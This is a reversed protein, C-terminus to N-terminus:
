ASKLQDIEVQTQTLTEELDVLKQSVTDIDPSEVEIERAITLLRMAGFNSAMGKISHAARQANELDGATISEKIQALSKSAEAPVCALAEHLGEDGLAERLENFKDHDFIPLESIVDTDKEEVAITESVVGMPEERSDNVAIPEPRQVVASPDHRLEQTTEQQTSEHIEAPAAGTNVPEKDRATEDDRAKAVRALAAFLQRPDIPKTVYDNMGAALYEERHGAMANATLAVIPTESLPPALKRIEMTATPGDMEPMQIDMLVLDFVAEQVAAVAEAGNNVVEVEHGVKTLMTRAVLQNVTNDEAILIKLKLPGDDGEQSDETRPQEVPAEGIASRITFWFTSGQGLESHLGVGGGMIQALQRCIVLGLGSGGFRRTTSSDAQSFRAFLKSQAEKPIGIGTDKVDVRLEVEEEVMKFTAIVRVGGKETFKVANGILNFLIQRLRTPDGRLWTPLDATGETALTLGVDAAKSSLLSVVGDIVQEPSYDVSELDIRGEELKSYDLIDDIISLLSEASDRALKTYKRQDDTLSTDSLIGIMGLVGNMPTRIEHSMTALFQSKAKNAANAEDRAVSLEEALAIQKVAEAEVRERADQLEDLRRNLEAQTDLMAAERANRELLSRHVFFSWALGVLLLLAAIGMFIYSGVDRFEADKPTMDVYVEIAGRFVGATMVPVYAESVVTRDEGFAESEEIKVFTEGKQVQAIFYPKTNVKGLDESRSAVTITGDPGFMKYRFVGGAQTAFNLVQATEQSVEGSSLISELDHIHTALFMAWQKASRLGQEKLLHIRAQDNLFWTTSLAAVAVLLLAFLLNRDDKRSLARFM